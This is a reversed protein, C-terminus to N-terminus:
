RSLRPRRPWSGNAVGPLGPWCHWPASLCYCGTLWGREPSPGLSFQAILALLLALISAWPAKQGLSEGTSTEERDPVKVVSQDARIESEAQRSQDLVSQEEPPIEVRPYKWPMLRSKLYDLVSPEEM